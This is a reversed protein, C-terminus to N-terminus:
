IKHLGHPESWFGIFICFVFQIQINKITIQVATTKRGVIKIYHEEHPCYFM